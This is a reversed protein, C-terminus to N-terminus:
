VKNLFDEDFAALADNLEEFESSGSARQEQHLKHPPVEDEKKSVDAATFTQEEQKSLDLKRRRRRRRYRQSGQDEITSVNLSDAVANSPTDALFNLLENYSVENNSNNEAAKSHKHDIKDKASPAHLMVEKGTVNEHLEELSWDEIDEINHDKALQVDEDDAVRLVVDNGSDNCDHNDKDNVVIDGESSYIRPRAHNAVRSKEQGNENVKVQKDDNYDHDDEDIVVVDNESSNIHPRAYNAVRSKEQGNENVKVQMEDDRHIQLEKKSSNICPQVYNAVKHRRDGDRRMQLKSSYKPDAATYAYEFIKFEFLDDDDIGMRTGIFVYIDLLKLFLFPVLLTFGLLLWLEEDGYLLGWIMGYQLANVAILPARSRTCVVEIARIMVTWYVGRHQADFGSSDDCQEERNALFLANAVIMPPFFKRADECLLFAPSSISTTAYVSLPTLAPAIMLIIARPACLSSILEVSDFNDYNKDEYNVFYDYYLQKPASMYADRWRYYKVSLFEMLTAIRPMIKPDSKEEKVSIADLRSRTKNTDLMESTRRLMPAPITVGGESLGTADNSSFSIKQSSLRRLESKVSSSQSIAKIQSRKRSSLGLTLQAISRKTELVHSLKAKRKHKDQEEATMNEWEEVLERSYDAPNREREGLKEDEEDKHSAKENDKTKAASEVQVNRSKIYQIFGRREYLPDTEDDYEIDELGALSDGGLNYGDFCQKTWIGMCVYLFIKYKEVVIFWYVVGVQTTFHFPWPVLYALSVSLCRVIFLIWLNELKFYEKINRIMEEHVMRCLVIYNAIVLKQKELWVLKEILELKAGMRLQDLLASKYKFSPKNKVSMVSSSERSIFKRISKRGKNSITSEVDDKTHSKGNQIFIAKDGGGAVENYENEDAEDDEDEIEDKDDYIYLKVFEQLEAHGLRRYFYRNWSMSLQLIWLDLAIFSPTHKLFKLVRSKITPPKLQAQLVLDGDEDDNNRECSNNINSGDSDVTGKGSSEIM